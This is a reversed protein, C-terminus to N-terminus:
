GLAEKRRKEVNPHWGCNLCQQNECAVGENFLCGPSEKGVAHKKNWYRTSCEKSCFKRCGTSSRDIGKVGCVICTYFRAKM